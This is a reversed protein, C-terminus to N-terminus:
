DYMGEYIERLKDATIEVDCGCNGCTEEADDCRDKM